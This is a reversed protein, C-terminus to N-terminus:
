PQVVREVLTAGDVGWNKIFTNPSDIGTLATKSAPVCLPSANSSKLDCITRERESKFLTYNNAVVPEFSGLGSSGSSIVIAIM